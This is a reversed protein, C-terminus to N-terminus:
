MPAFGRRMTNESVSRPIVFQLLYDPGGAKSGVGSMMAGGFPQRYVLAGTSNRNIYLNGVRFREIAKEINRPSRSFVAGTLGYESDLALELAQDFSPAPVVALIPGFLEKKLLFHEDPIDTFVTPPVFYGKERLDAPLDAQALIECDTKAQRIAELLRLQAEEDIVPPVFTDPKSAPGVYMSRTANALREIFRDFCEGVVIARSCASCKQGAYGFASQIIGKVAEDLDADEDVIIANKGGMEAVVRTVHRSGPIVKAGNEILQLGVSKSGTFCITEIEPRSALHAGVEEGIGPLFCAAEPPMGAQLFIEFLISAIYSTQEAPKLVTCNGCVLAAAFMGCPIAFPFNWPSIVLAVGRPEHFYSNQEGAYEGMRQATFLQRAQQAYYRCFDIAEAADADAESVPKGAEFVMAASIEARRNEMIEAAKELVACREDISTSRWTDFYNSLGAIAEDALTTDALGITALSFSKNEPAHSDLTAKTRRAEGAVIPWVEAPAAQLKQQMHELAQAAESRAEELTYDRLPVNRFTDDQKVALHDKGTDGEVFTPRQLLQEATKGGHASIRLFGENSTNELLRRVLYGMGPILEGVPAYQRVLFGQSSLAQNMSDAMGYLSQIEFQTPEVGLQRAAMCAHALSRVNHSGFAPVILDHNRLLMLSLEEFNADSCSKEQWVPTPWSHQKALITETDWYAGKVLRVAIPVGRKRTWAILEELDNKSRRLYAQMVIGCHPYDRFEPQELVQKFTALTESVMASDEMDVYVFAGVSKAKRLIESLRLSLEAVNREFSIPKLQSYLASLKVSINNPAVESRHNAVVPQREAWNPMAEAICDLLALYREVYARGEIDSVTAEGVLDVTFAMKQKRIKKLASLAKEPTEGVIFRDAVFRVQKRIAKAVVASTLSSPSISLGKQLFGPIKDRIPEFYEQVHGIVAASSVLNPLVDVFRFLSVKVEEDRMSYDMLLETYYQPDLKSPQQKKIEKFLQAGFSLIDQELQSSNIQNM